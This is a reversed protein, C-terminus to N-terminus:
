MKVFLTTPFLITKYKKLILLFHLKTIQKVTTERSARNHMMIKSVSSM